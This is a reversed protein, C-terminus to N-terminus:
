YPTKDLLPYLTLILITFVFFDKKFMHTQPRTVAAAKVNFPQAELM